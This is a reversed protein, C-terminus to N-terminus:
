NVAINTNHLTIRDLAASGTADKGPVYFSADDTGYNAGPGGNHLDQDNQLSWFATFLVNKEARSASEIGAATPKSWAYEGVGFAKNKAAARRAATTIDTNTFVSYPHLGVLDVYPSNLSENTIIHEIRDGNVGDWYTSGDAAMGDAVLVNPAISKIYQAIEPTWSRFDDATWLENGTEVISIAPENKYQRGTLPNMHNLWDSIYKKYDMKVQGVFFQNEATREASSNASKVNGDMSVTGPFRFNVWHRKGGHYYGLEDTLPVMLYLGRDSAAKVVYDMLDWVAQNYSIIPNDGTGSIGTVLHNASSGINTGMTHARVIGAKLTVAKDLLSDIEAHSMLRSSPYDNHILQFINVGGTRYPIGNKTVVGGTSMTLRAQGTPPPIVINDKQRLSSYIRYHYDDVLPNVQLAQESIVTTGSVVTDSRKLRASLIGGTAPLPTTFRWTGRGPVVETSIITENLLIELSGPNTAFVLVEVNNKTSTGGGNVSFAVQQTSADITADTRHIRHSLYLGDRMISPWYGTRYKAIYYSQLDLLAFTNNYTPAVHAHETYDNWTVIQNFAAKMDIAARWSGDVTRTGESEWTRYSTGSTGAANPRTDMPTGGFHMWPKGFQTQCYAGANRNNNNNTGVSSSDRDGWRGHGYAINNFLPACNSDTWQAVYCMWFDTPQGYVTNLTSKLRTWFTLRDNATLSIGSPWAEPAFPAIMLKGNPRYMAPRNALQNIANALADASANIDGDVAYTAWGATGDPMLMLKFNTGDAANVAEVANFLRKTRTWHGTDDVSGDYGRISLMNVTFGTLGAAIACRIELEMDRQEWGSTGTSSLGTQMPYDRTFGGYRKHKGSEGTIGPKYYQEYYYGPTSTPSSSIRLPFQTFYHAMVQPASDAIQLPLNWPQYNTVKTPAQGYPVWAGKQRGFHTIDM